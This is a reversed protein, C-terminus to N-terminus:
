LGYIGLVKERYEETLQWKKLFENDAKFRYKAIDLTFDKDVDIGETQLLKKQLTKDNHINGQISIRGKNNVVRWWPISIQEDLSRLIWGVQRAARPAGVYLAVQGYSVVKGRPISKVVQIVKQAFRSNSFVLNM